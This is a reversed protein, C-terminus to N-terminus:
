DCLCLLVYSNCNTYHLKVVQKGVVLYSYVCLCRDVCVKFIQDKIHV